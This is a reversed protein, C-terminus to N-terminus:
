ELPELHIKYPKGDIYIINESINEQDFISAKYYSADTKWIYSVSMILVWIIGVIITTDSMQNDLFDCYSKFYKQIKKMWRGYFIYVYKNFWIKENNAFIKWFFYWFNSVKKVM